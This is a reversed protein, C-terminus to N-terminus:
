RASPRERRGRTSGGPEDRWLAFARDIVARTDASLGFADLEATSVRAVQAADSGASLDGGVPRCLYDILVYHYQVRGAADRLIRECVEVCAGVVVDLGTEERVERVLAEDLREGLEVSGGPLSWRGALPAFRRKVLVLTGADDIVVAGVGPIPRTPYQRGRATRTRHARSPV